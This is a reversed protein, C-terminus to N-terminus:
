EQSKMGREEMLAIVSEKDVFRWGTIPHKKGKLTRMDFLHYVTTRSIGLIKAAEGTSMYKSGKKRNMGRERSGGRRPMVAGWNERREIREGPEKIFDVCISSLLRLRRKEEDALPGLNTIGKAWLRAKL